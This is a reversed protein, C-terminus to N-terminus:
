SPWGLGSSKSARSSTMADIEREKGETSDPKEHTADQSFSRRKRKRRSWWVPRDFTEPIEQVFAIAAAGAVGFLIGSLFAYNNESQLADGNITQFAPELYTSGQWVYDPGIAQGAPSMYGISQHTITAALDSQKETISLKAPTWFLDAPGGFPTEYASPDLVIDRILHSANNYREALVTPYTSSYGVSLDVTGIAPLHGYLYAHTQELDNIPYYGIDTPVGGPESIDGRLRFEMAFYGDITQQAPPSLLPSFFQPPVTELRSIKSGTLGPRLRNALMLVTVNKVSSPAYVWVTVHDVQPASLSQPASLAQIFPNADAQPFEYADVKISVKPNSVFVDIEQPAHDVFQKSESGPDSLAKYQFAYHGVILVILLFALARWGKLLKLIISQKDQESQDNAKTPGDDPESALKASTHDNSM